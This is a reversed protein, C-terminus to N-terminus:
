ATTIRMSRTDVHGVTIKNKTVPRARAIRRNVSRTSSATFIAAATAVGVNPRLIARFSRIVYNAATLASFKEELHTSLRANTIILHSITGRYAASATAMMTLAESQEILL